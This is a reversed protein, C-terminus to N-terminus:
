EHKYMVVITRDDHNGISWFSLWDLLQTSIDEDDANFDVPFVGDGGKVTLEQWFSDWESKNELRNETEFKADSVGDSMLMISTFDKMSHVTIRNILDSNQFINPTTLFRTQGSYEGSDITNMLLSNHRYVGKGDRIIPTSVDKEHGDYVVIAGDGVSFSIVLWKDNIKKTVTLLFTTAFDKLESKTNGPADVLNKIEKLAGLAVNPLIRYAAKKLNIFICRFGLM